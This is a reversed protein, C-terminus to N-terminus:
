VCHSYIFFIVKLEKVLIKLHSLWATRRLSWTYAVFTLKINVGLWTALELRRKTYSNTRQIETIICLYVYLRKPLTNTYMYVGNGTQPEAVYLSLIGMIIVTNKKNRNLSYM